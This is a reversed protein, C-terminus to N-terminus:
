DFLGDFEDGDDEFDLEVDDGSTVEEKQEGLIQALTYETPVVGRRYTKGIGTVEMKSVYGGKGSGYEKALESLTVFGLELFEKDEDSLMDESFEVEEVRNILNVNVAIKGLECEDVTFVKKILKCRADFKEHETDQPFELYQHFGVIPQEKSGYQTAYGSLKFIGDEDLTSDDLCGDAVLMDLQGKAYEETSEDVVYIRTVNYNTYTSTKGTKKNTWESFEIEGKVRVSLDTHETLYEHLFLSFDYGDIFEERSDKDYVFVSKKFDALKPLYKARDKYKFEIKEGKKDGEAKTFSKIIATDESGFLNGNVDLYFFDEGCKMTLRLKRMIFDNKRTVGDKNKEGKKYRQEQFALRKDTDKAVNIKGVMEFTSAM